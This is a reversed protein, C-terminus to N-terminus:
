FFRNLKPGGEKQFFEKDVLIECNTLLELYDYPDYGRGFLHWGLMCAYKPVEFFDLQKQEPEGETTITFPTNRDGYKCDVHIRRFVHTM